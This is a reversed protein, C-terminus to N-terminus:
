LSREGNEKVFLKNFEGQDSPITAGTPLSKQQNSQLMIVTIRTIRTITTDIM